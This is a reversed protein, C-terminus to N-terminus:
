PRYVSRSLCKKVLAEMEEPTAEPSAYWGWPVGVQWEMASRYAIACHESEYVTVSPLYQGRGQDWATVERAAQRLEELGRYRKSAYFGKRWAAKAVPDNPERMKVVKPFEGNCSVLFVDGENGSFSRTIHKWTVVFRGKECIFTTSMSNGVPGSRGEVYTIQHAAM